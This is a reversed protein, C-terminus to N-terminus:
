NEGLAPRLDRVRHTVVMRQCDAHLTVAIQDSRLHQRRRRFIEVQHVGHRIEHHLGHALQVKRGQATQVSPGIVGLARCSWPNRPTFASAIMRPTAWPLAIRSTPSSSVPNHNFTNDMPDLCNRQTAHESRWRRWSLNVHALFNHGSFEVRAQQHCVISSLTSKHTSSTAHVLVDVCRDNCKSPNMTCLSTGGTVAVRFNM